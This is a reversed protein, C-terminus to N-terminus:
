LKNIIHYTQVKKGTFILSRDEASLSLTTYRIGEEHPLEFRVAHELLYEVSSDLTVGRSWELPRMLEAMQPSRKRVRLVRLKQGAHLPTNVGMKNLAALSSADTRYRLAIDVLTEGEKVKYTVYKGKQASKKADKKQGKKQTQQKQPAKEPEAFIDRLPFALLILGFAIGGGLLIASNRRSRLSRKRKRPVYRVSDHQESRKGGTIPRVVSRVWYSINDWSTQKPLFGINKELNTLLRKLNIYRLEDGVYQIKEGGPSFLANCEKLTQQATRLQQRMRFEEALVNRLQKPLGKLLLASEKESDFVGLVQEVQVRLNLVFSLVAESFSTRREVSSTLEQQWQSSEDTYANLKGSIDLQAVLRLLSPPPLKVMAAKFDSEHLPKLHEILSTMRLEVERFSDEARTIVAGFRQWFAVGEEIQQKERDFMNGLDTFHEELNAMVNEKMLSKLKAGATEIHGVFRRYNDSIDSILQSLSGKIKRGSGDEGVFLPLVEDQLKQLDQHLTSVPTFLPIFLSMTLKDMRTFLSELKYACVAKLIHMIICVIIAWKSPELVMPLLNLQTLCDGDINWLTGCIGVLLVLSASLSLVVMSPHRAEREQTIDKLDDLLPMMRIVNRENVMCTILALREQIVDLGKGKSELGLLLQDLRYVPEEGTNSWKEGLLEAIALLATERAHRLTESDDSASSQESGDTFCRVAADYKDLEENVDSYRWLTLLFCGVGAAFFLLIFSTVIEGTEM